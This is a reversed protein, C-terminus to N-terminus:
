QAARVADPYVTENKGYFKLTFTTSWADPCKEVLYRHVETYPDVRFFLYNDMLESQTVAFPLTLGAPLMTPTCLAGNRDFLRFAQGACSIEKDTPNRVVVEVVVLSDAQAARGTRIDLKEQGATVASYARESSSARQLQGAIKQRQMIAMSAAGTTLMARGLHEFLFLIYM